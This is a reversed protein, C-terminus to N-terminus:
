RRVPKLGLALRYVSVPFTTREKGGNLGATRDMQAAPVVLGGRDDIWMADPWILRKPDRAIVMMRGNPAYRVIRRGEVDGIYVNGAGDIASGATTRTPAFPRVHRGRQADTVDNRLWRTEIKSMPGSCPQFYLIKGDPSIEHQDAHIKVVRGTEDRLVRGDSGRLPKTDVTAPYHHLVRRARGSDLDLVIIGPDGADTLIAERGLFRVDDPNSLATVGGKLDYTRAIRNTRLDVRVLKPGGPIPPKGVAKTGADVLWLSDRWVRLANILVFGRKPDDGPKYFDEPADPFPTERDNKVEVVRPQGPKATPHTLFTRGDATTTVGNTNPDTRLFTALKPAVALALLPAIM